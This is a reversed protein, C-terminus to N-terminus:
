FTEGGFKFTSPVPSTDNSATKQSTMHLRLVRKLVAKVTGSFDALGDLNLLSEVKDRFASPLSAWDKKLMTKLGAMNDYVPSLYNVSGPNAAEYAVISDHVSQPASLLCISFRNAPMDIEHFRDGRTIDIFDHLLSRTYEGISDIAIVQKVRYLRVM